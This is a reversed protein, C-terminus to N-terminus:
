ADARALRDFPLALAGGAPVAAWQAFLERRRDRIADLQEDTLAHLPAGGHESYYLAAKENFDAATWPVGAAREMDLFGVILESWGSVAPVPGRPWPAAFDTVNWGESVLGYFGRTHGLVTEVAYHTLDHQAFFHGQAGKPSQWTVSGDARTCSMAASGDTNKKIRILLDPM